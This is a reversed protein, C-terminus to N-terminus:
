QHMDKCGPFFVEYLGTQCSCASDTPGSAAMRTLACQAAPDRAGLALAIQIRQKAQAIKSARELLLGDIVYPRDWEPWRNEIERVASAAEAGRNMSSLVVVRTLALGADGPASRLARDTLDLAKRSQNHRLLLLATQQALRPRSVSYRASEELAKAAEDSQGEADLISAKLLLADGREEGPAIRDLMALAERPGDTYYLATALDLRVSPKGSAARQLFDRALAYQEARLLALGATQSTESGPNMALLDRFTALAEETKGADLLASGLNSKLAADNPSAQIAQRLQEIVRRSREPSSLSASEIIGPEQRPMRAPELRVRKFRELFPQAEATRSQEILARALHFLVNPDQPSLAVAQRLAKEAEAPKQLNSYNLGLLDLARVDRPNLRLATQLEAVSDENRGLQQLLWARVFHAPEFEPALRVAESVRDLAQAQDVANLLLALDYLGVADKPHKEVYQTLLKLAEPVDTRNSGVVLARDRRVIDDSPDGAPRLKLYEDYALISDGYFGGMQAARALALMVDPRQPALKRAQALLYVARDYDQLNTEVRGLELLASVDGPRSKLAVEFARRARDNHGARAAALGLNYLVDFDEPEKALVASFATEAQEYFGIRGCAIGLAFLLRPDGRATGTFARIADLAAQRKGALQLAEVRVLAAESDSANVHSLYALAQSAEKRAVALRALQLNANAHEPNLKLM